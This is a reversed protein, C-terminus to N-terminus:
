REVEEVLTLFEVPVTFERGDSLKLYVLQKGDQEIVTMTDVESQRVVVAIEYTKPKNTRFYLIFFLTSIIIICLILVTECLHKKIIKM